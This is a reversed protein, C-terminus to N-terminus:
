RTARFFYAIARVSITSCPHPVAVATSARKATERAQEMLHEHEALALQVALRLRERQTEVRANTLAVIGPVISGLFAGLLAAGASVMAIELTISM